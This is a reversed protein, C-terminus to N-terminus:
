TTDFEVSQLECGKWVEVVTLSNAGTEVVMRYRVEMIGSEPYFRADAVIFNQPLEQFEKLYAEKSDPHLDHGLAMMGGTSTIILCPVEASRSDEAALLSELADLRIETDDIRGNAKRLEKGIIIFDAQMGQLTRYVGELTLEEDQAILATPILLALLIVVAATIRKM